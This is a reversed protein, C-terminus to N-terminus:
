LVARVPSNARARRTGTKAPVPSGLETRWTSSTKSSVCNVFWFNKTAPEEKLRNGQKQVKDRVRDKGM